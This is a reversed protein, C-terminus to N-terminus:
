DQYYVEDFTYNYKRCVYNIFNDLHRKDKFENTMVVQFGYGNIFQITAIM